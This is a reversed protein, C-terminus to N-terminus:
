ERDIGLRFRILNSNNSLIVTRRYNEKKNLMVGSMVPRGYRCKMRKSIPPLEPSCAKWM